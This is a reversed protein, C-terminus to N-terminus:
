PLPCILLHAVKPLLENKLAPLTPFAQQTQQIFQRTENCPTQGLLWERAWILSLGNICHPLRLQGPVDQPMKGCCAILRSQGKDQEWAGALSALRQRTAPNSTQGNPSLLTDIDYLRQSATMLSTKCKEDATTFLPSVSVTTVLSAYQPTIQGAAGALESSLSIAIRALRTYWELLPFWHQTLRQFLAYQVLMHGVRELGYTLISQKVNQVSLQMRNDKSAADTLFQSFAPEATVLDVVKQIPVDQDNLARLVAQLSAPPRGTPYSAPLAWQHDGPRIVEGDEPQEDLEALLRTWVTVSKTQHPAITFRQKPLWLFRKEAELYVLAQERLQSLMVGTQGAVKVSMGEHMIGPYELLANLLPQSAIPLTMTLKQLIDNFTALPTRLAFRYWFWAITFCDQCSNKGSSPLIHAAWYYQGSRTLQKIVATIRQRTAASQQQLRHYALLAAVGQQLTHQNVRNRVGLLLYVAIHRLWLQAAPSTADYPRSALVTLLPLFNKSFDLWRASVELYVSLQGSENAPLTPLAESDSVLAKLTALM